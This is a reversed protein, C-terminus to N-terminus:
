EPRIRVASERQHRPGHASKAGSRGARVLGARPVRSHGGGEPGQHGWYFATEKDWLVKIDQRPLTEDKFSADKLLLM